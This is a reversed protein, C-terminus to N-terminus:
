LKWAGLRDYTPNPGPHSRMLVVEAVRWLPCDYADLAVRDAAVQDRDIRDGPRAITLHPRFPKRDFPLRARSLERRVSRSLGTLSPLDGGLAAWLITFRGRGFRGGGAVKIEFPAPQSAAKSLAAEVDPLRDDPVEGLFALTVHWNSRPALRTNVGEAAARSVRLGAVCAALHDAVEDTPYVATFLRL